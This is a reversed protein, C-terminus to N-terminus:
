CELNRSKPHMRLGLVMLGLLLAGQSSIEPIPAVDGPRVAMAYLATTDRALIYVQFGNMGFAVAASPVGNEATGSWYTSFLLNRFKGTNTLAGASNGLEIYFLHGMESRTCNTQLCGDSIPLRWDDYGAFSLGDAWSIATGWPMRGNVNANRLWTINLDTDYFADVQGNHDLDRDLLTAQATGSMLMTLTLACLVSFNRFQQFM